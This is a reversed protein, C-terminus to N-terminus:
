SIKVHSSNLRTSKRDQVNLDDHYRTIHLRFSKLPYFTKAREVKDTLRDIRLLQLLQHQLMSDDSCCRVFRHGSNRLCNSINLKSIPLADHLSLSHIESP